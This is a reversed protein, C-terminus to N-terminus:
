RGRRAPGDGPGVTDALWVVLPSMTRWADGVEDRAGATHLWDAPEFSRSLTLSRHRLLQAHPHDAPTGRPRTALMDGGVEMGSDSAAAVLSQLHAGGPGDVADRYRQVQAPQPSYWGGAAMLGDASVQVYFGVGDGTAVYGGQHDKYPSKDHSFRVDRYPRFLHGAGFEPELDALLELMPERVAEEYMAKHATWYVKSNDAVLGEYFELAPEPFGNFTM